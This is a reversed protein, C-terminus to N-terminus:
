IMAAYMDMLASFSAAMPMFWGAEIFGEVLQDVPADVAKRAFHPFMEGDTYMIQGTYKGQCIEAYTCHDGGVGIVPAFPLFKEDWYTMQPTLLALDTSPDGSGIGFLTNMDALSLSVNAREAAEFDFHFVLGNTRRLFAHYDHSFRTNYKREYDDVARGSAPSFASEVHGSQLIRELSSM